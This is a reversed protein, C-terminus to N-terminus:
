LKENVFLAREAVKGAKELAQVADSALTEVAVRADRIAEYEKQIASLKRAAMAERRKLTTLMAQQAEQLSYFNSKANRKICDLPHTGYYLCTQTEKIIQYRVIENKGVRYAETILEKEKLPKNGSVVTM